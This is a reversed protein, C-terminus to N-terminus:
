DTTAGICTAFTDPVDLNVDAVLVNADV